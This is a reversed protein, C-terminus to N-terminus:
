LQPLTLHSRELPFENYSTLNPSNLQGYLMDTLTMPAPPQEALMKELMMMRDKEIGGVAVEEEEVKEDRVIIRGDGFASPPHTIGSLV